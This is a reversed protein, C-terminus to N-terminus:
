GKPQGVHGDRIAATGSKAVDRDGALAWCLPGGPLRMSQGIGKIAAYLVYTSFGKEEAAARVVKVPKPGNALTATLWAKCDELRPAPRPGRPADEGPPSDDFTCGEDTITMGLSPPKAACSKDVWFKRRNPQGDPDPCTLKWVVRSAGVIRRGLAQADRSLHTLLLFPVGTHGAMAMLPGFYARADEPRCLNRDTTMGVTDVVVLGPSQREIRQRLADLVEPEDLDLGDGPRDPPANFLLAEGPLDYRGALDILQTYHRDGPVWLTKTGAPFPNTQGDPWPWGHWLVRALNMALLTKGVGPDAALSNIVGAALWGPWPWSTDTVMRKLDDLTACAHPDAAPRVEEPPGGHPDAAAVVDVWGECDVRGALFGSWILLRARPATARLQDALRHIVDSEDVPELGGSPTTSKGCLLRALVWADRPGLEVRRGGDRHNKM